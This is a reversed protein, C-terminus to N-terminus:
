RGRRRRRARFVARGFVIARYAAVFSQTIALVICATWATLSNSAMLVVVLVLQMVAGFMSSRNAHKSLGLPALAPFGLLYIIPTVAVVILMVRLLNGGDAFQSGLLLITIDEAWIWAVFCVTLWSGMFVAFIKCLKSYDRTRIMYPYLSDALPGAAKNAAQTIREVGSYVGVAPSAAPYVFSLALLNASASLRSAVRSFFFPSSDRLARTVEDRPVARLRVGVRSRLHIFVLVLAILNPILTTLPILVYDSEDRILIVVLLVTLAQASVARVTIPTMTEMGRYVFDPLLATTAASAFAGWYLVPESRMVPVVAILVAMVVLGLSILVVKAQMVASVRIQLLRRDKRTRAVEATGSLLFGFDFAVAFLSSVILAVSVLGFASPGLVRTQYPVTIFSFFYSALTLVYLM